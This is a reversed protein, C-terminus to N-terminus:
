IARLQAGGYGPCLTFTSVRNMASNSPFHLMCTCPKTGFRMNKIPPCVAAEREFYMSNCVTHMCNPSRCIIESILAGAPGGMSKPPSLRHSRDEAACLITRRFLELFCAPKCVAFRSQIDELMRTNKAYQM